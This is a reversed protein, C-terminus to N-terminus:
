RRTAFFILKHNQIEGCSKPVSGVPVGAELNRDMFLTSSGPLHSKTM